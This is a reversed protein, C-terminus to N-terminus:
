RPMETILKLRQLEDLIVPSLSLTSVDLDQLLLRAEVATLESDPYLAELASATIRSLGLEVFARGSTSSIGLELALAYDFVESRRDSLQSAALVFDLLDLYAKALQVSQFRLVDEIFDFVQRVLTNLNQASDDAQKHKLWRRLLVPYPQGQMWSLAYTAVFAGYKGPKDYGLVERAIRNFIGTYRTFAGPERPHLPILDDVEGNAIKEEMRKLLRAL